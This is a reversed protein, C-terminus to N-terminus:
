PLVRLRVSGDSARAAMRRFAVRSNREFETPRAAQHVGVCLADSRSGCLPCARPADHTETRLYLWAACGFIFANAIWLGVRVYEATHMWPNFDM